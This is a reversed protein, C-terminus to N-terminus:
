YIAEALRVLEQKPESLQGFCASRGTVALRVERVTEREGVRAGTAPVGINTNTIVSRNGDLVPFHMIVLSFCSYGINKKSKM